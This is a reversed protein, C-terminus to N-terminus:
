KEFYCSRLLKSKDGFGDVYIYVVRVSPYKIVLQM